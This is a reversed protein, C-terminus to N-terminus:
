VLKNTSITVRVPIKTKLNVGKEKIFKRKLNEFAAGISDILNNKKKASENQEKVAESIKSLVAGHDEGEKIQYISAAFEKGALENNADYLIVGFENKTRPLKHNDKEEQLEKIVEQLRNLVKDQKDPDVEAVQLAAQIEDLSIKNSM